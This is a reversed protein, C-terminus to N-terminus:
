WLSKEGMRRIIRNATVILVMSVVSKMLGLATSIEYKGGLLGIRYIYTDLIDGVNYLAPKLFMFIQDFGASLVNAVAMILQLCIVGRIGPLTVHWTQRLRGAGDLSAAEYLQPDIGSLSAMYIISSWGFNKLIDTLLIMPIFADPNTTLNVQEMGMNKLTLNIVGNPGTFTYVIGAFVVWSIFNPFCTITQIIKKFHMNRVENMLLAFIVPVPFAFVIRLVSIKLTNWLLRTFNRDELIYRFYKLGVWESEAVGIFPKYDKFAIVIGYYCSYSFVLFYVVAPFFLIYVWKNMMIRHWLGGTKPSLANGPTHGKRRVTNSVSKVAAWKREAVNDIQFYCIGYGKDIGEGM